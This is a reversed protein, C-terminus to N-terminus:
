ASRRDATKICFVPCGGRLVMCSVSCLRGARIRGASAAIRFLLLRDRRWGLASAPDRNVAGVLGDQIGPLIVGGANRLGWLTGPIQLFRLALFRVDALIRSLALILGRVLTLSDDLDQVINRGSLRLSLNRGFARLATFLIYTRVPCFLCIERRGWSFDCTRM